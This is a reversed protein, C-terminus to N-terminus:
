CRAMRALIWCHLNTLIIIPRPPYGNRLIRFEALKNEWMYNTRHLTNPRRPYIATVSTPGVRTIDLESHGGNEAILVVLM